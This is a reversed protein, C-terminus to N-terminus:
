IPIKAMYISIATCRCGMDVSFPGTNLNQKRIGFDVADRIMLFQNLTLMLDYQLRWASEDPGFKGLALKPFM